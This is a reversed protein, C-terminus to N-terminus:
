SPMVEFFRVYGSWVEGLM